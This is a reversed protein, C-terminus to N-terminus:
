SIPQDRDVWVVVMQQTDLLLTRVIQITSEREAETGGGFNECRYSISQLLDHQVFPDRKHVMVEIIKDSQTWRVRHLTSM